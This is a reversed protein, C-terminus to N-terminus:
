RYKKTNDIDFLEIEFNSQSIISHPLFLLIFAILVMFLQKM